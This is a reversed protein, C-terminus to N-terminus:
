IVGDDSNIGVRFLPRRYSPQEIYLSVTSMVKLKVFYLCVFIKFMLILWQQLLGEFILCNWWVSIFHCGHCCPLTATIAGGSKSTVVNNFWDDYVWIMFQIYFCYHRNIKNILIICIQENLLKLMKFVLKHSLVLTGAITILKFFGM